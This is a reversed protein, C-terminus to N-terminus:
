AGDDPGMGFGTIHAARQDHQPPTKAGRICAVADHITAAYLRGTLSHGVLRGTRPKSEVGTFRGDDNEGFRLIVDDGGKLSVRIEAQYGFSGHTVSLWIESPRQDAQLTHWPFELTGLLADEDGHRDQDVYHELLLGLIATPSQGSKVGISGLDESSGTTYDLRGKLRFSAWPQLELLNVQRVAQAAKTHDGPTCIGMLFSAADNATMQAGGRGRGGSSILGDERLMRGIIVLSKEPVGTATALTRTLQSLTAM